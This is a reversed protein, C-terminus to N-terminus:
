LFMRFKQVSIDEKRTPIDLKIIKLKSSITLSCLSARSNCEEEKSFLLRAPNHPKHNIPKGWPSDGGKDGHFDFFGLFFWVTSSTLREGKEKLIILKVINQRNPHNRHNQGKPNFCM